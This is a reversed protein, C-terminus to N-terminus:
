SMSQGSFLRAALTSKVFLVRSVSTLESLVFPLTSGISHIGTRASRM